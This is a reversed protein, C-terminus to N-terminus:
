VATGDRRMLMDSTTNVHEGDEDIRSDVGDTHFAVDDNTNSSRQVKIGGRRETVLKYALVLTRPYEDRGNLYSNTLKDLLDQSIM